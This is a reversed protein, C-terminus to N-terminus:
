CLKLFYVISLGYKQTHVAQLKLPLPVEEKQPIRFILIGENSLLKSYASLLKGKIKSDMIFPPDLMILGFSDECRRSFENADSESVTCVGDCGAKAINKKLCLLAERDIEVFVAKGAGRSIAELGFAGSGAFVDLVNTAPIRDRILDFISTKIRDTLPRSAKAVELKMGKFKGTIIRPNM